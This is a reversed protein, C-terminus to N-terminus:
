LGSEGGYGGVYLGEGGVGWGAANPSFSKKMM